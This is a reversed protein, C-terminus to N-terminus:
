HKYKKHRPLVNAGFENGCVDCIVRPFKISKATSDLISVWQRSIGLEKAIELTSKGSARLDQAKDALEKNEQFRLRDRLGNLDAWKKMRGIGIDLILSIESFSNGQSYLSWIRNIEIESLPNNIQHSPAINKLMSISINRKSEETHNVAGTGTPEGNYLHNGQSKYYNWWFKERKIILKELSNFDESLDPKIWEEIAEFSLKEAGYKIYARLLGKCKHKGSKFDKLHGNWRNQFSDCTMGIYMKGSPSVIRYVGIKANDFRIVRDRM